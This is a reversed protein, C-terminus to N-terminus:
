RNADCEHAAAADHAAPSVVRLRNQVTAVSHRGLTM